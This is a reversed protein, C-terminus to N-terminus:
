DRKEGKIGIVGMMRGTHGADRRHSFFLEARCSTCPADAYINARDVGADVLQRVNDEALDLKITRGDRFPTARWRESRMLAYNKDVFSKHPKEIHLLSSSYSFQSQYEAAVEEGIRYCCPGIGPGIAGRLDEPRSGCFLRMRGVGKQAIRKATGRWGCHFAAVVRQRIDVVLVPLCDASLIALLLGPRDTILGDGRPTRSPNSGTDVMRILDSHIQQQVVLSMDSARLCELFRRRNEEVSSPKDWAVKGLNLQHQASPLGSLASVGGMRTSFGHVLWPIQALGPARLVLTGDSVQRKSPRVLKTPM